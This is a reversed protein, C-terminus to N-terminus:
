FRGSLGVGGGGNMARPGVTDLLPAAARKKKKDLGVALIPIGVGLHLAGIGALSASAILGGLGCDEGSCGSDVALPIFASLALVAGIVTVVTGNTVLGKVERESPPGPRHTPLWGGAERLEESSPLLPDPTQASALRASALLSVVLLATLRNSMRVPRLLRSALKWGRSVEEAGRAFGSLGHPLESM